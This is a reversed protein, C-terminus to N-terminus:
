AGPSSSAEGSPLAADLARRPLPWVSQAAHTSEAETDRPYRSLEGRADEQLRKLQAGVRELVRRAGRDGRAALLAQAEAEVLLDFAPTMYKSHVQEISADSLLLANARAFIADMSDRAENLQEPAEDM